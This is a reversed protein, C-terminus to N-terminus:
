LEGEPKAYHLAALGSGSGHRAHSSSPFGPMASSSARTNAYGPSSSSPRPAPAAMNGNHHGNALASLPRFNPAPPASPQPQPTDDGGDKAKLEDILDILKELYPHDGGRFKQFLTLYDNLITLVTHRLSAPGRMSGMHGLDTMYLPPLTLGNSNGASGSFGTHQSGSGMSGNSASGADSGSSRAVSHRTRGSTHAATTNKELHGRKSVADAIAEDNCLLVLTQAIDFLKYTFGVGHAEMSPLSLRDSCVDLVSQAVHIAHDIRLPPEKADLSLLGHNLTILWLRNLLWHRTVEVDARQIQGRQIPTSPMMPRASYPPLSSPSTSSSGNADDEREDDSVSRERSSPNTSATQNSGDTFTRWLAIARERDFNSCGAGKCKQNWCDVFKEDVVDFLKLQLDPFDSLERVGLKARLSATSARPNGTLVIPMRSQIAFARETIALLWYMRLRREAEDKPLGEYSQPEHLRCLHAITISERLRYWGALHEGLGFLTAFVFFSTCCQELAVSQGMFPSERVKLAEELLKVARARRKRSTMRNAKRERAETNPQAQIETLASMALLMAAFHPDNQHDDRDLRSFLWTRSFVPMVGGLREYFLALTPILVSDSLPHNDGQSAGQEESCIGSATTKGASFHEGGQDESRSYSENRTDPFGGRSSDFASGSASTTSGPTESSPLCTGLMDLVTQQGNSTPVLPPLSSETFLTEADFIGQNNLLSDAMSTSFPPLVASQLFDMAPMGSGDIAFSVSGPLAQMHSTNVSVDFHGMGGNSGGGGGGGGSSMPPGRSSPGPMAHGNPMSAYQPQATGDSYYQAGASSHLSPGGTAASTAFPLEQDYGPPPMSRSGVKSELPGGSMGRSSHGTPGAAHQFRVQRADDYAMRARPSAPSHTRWNGGQTSPMESNISGSAPPAGGYYQHPARGDDTPYRRNDSFSHSPFTGGSSGVMPTGTATGGGPAGNWVSSSIVPTHQTPSTSSTWSGQSRRAERPPTQLGRDKDAKRLAEIRKGATKQRIPPPSLDVTMKMNAISIPGAEGVVNPERHSEGQGDIGKYLHLQAGLPQLSRM